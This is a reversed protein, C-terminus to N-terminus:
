KFAEAIEEKAQKAGESPNIASIIEPIRHGIGSQQYFAALLFPLGNEPKLQEEVPLSLFIEAGATPAPKQDKGAEWAAEEAKREAVEADTMPIDVGDVNKIYDM